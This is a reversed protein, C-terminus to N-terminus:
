PRQPSANGFRIEATQAPVIHISVLAVWLALALRYARAAVPM